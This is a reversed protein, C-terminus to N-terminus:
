SQVGFRAIRADLVKSYAGMLHCQIELLGRDEAALKEFIPSSKIFGNLAGLKVDLEKKEDVVRQQHPQLQIENM